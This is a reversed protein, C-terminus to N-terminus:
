VGTADPFYVNPIKEIEFMNKGDTNNFLNVIEADFDANHIIPKVYVDLTARWVYAGIIEVNPITQNNFRCTCEQITGDDVELLWKFERTQNKRYFAWFYQRYLDNEIIVTATVQHVAGIYKILNRPFGGELVQERVNNGVRFSYGEQLAPLAFTDM